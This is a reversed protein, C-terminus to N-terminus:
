DKDSQAYYEDALIGWLEVDEFQNWKKLHQRAQGEHRMGTNELVKGSAPNRSFHHAYIRHLGQEEFGYKLIARVAETCYGQNWYEKGIWYGLEAHQHERSLSVFGIIGILLNDSKRSIAFVRFIGLHYQQLIERIWERAQEETYPYPIAITTDAIARDGALQRIREAEGANLPRLILRESSIVPINATM